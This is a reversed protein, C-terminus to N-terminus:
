LLASGTELDLLWRKRDLGGAYGVLGGSAGVLRHCPVIISIPNRGTAAGVARTGRPSGIREALHGYTETSGYPIEVLAAWVRKQFDTGRAALPLDFRTLKRGFYRDLQRVAETLVRTSSTDDAREDDGVWRLSTVADHDAEVALRGVPSEVYCISMRWAYRRAAANALM